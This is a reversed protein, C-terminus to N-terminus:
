SGGVRRQLLINCVSLLHFTITTRKVGGNGVSHFARVFILNRQTANQTGSLVIKIADNDCLSLWFCDYKLVSFGGFFM